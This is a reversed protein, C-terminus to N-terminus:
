VSICKRVAGPGVCPWQNFSKLKSTGSLVFYTVESINEYGIEQSLVAPVLGLVVFAFLVPFFPLFICFAFM